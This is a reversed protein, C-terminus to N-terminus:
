HGGSPSATPLNFTVPTPSPKPTPSASPTPSPSPTPTPIAFSPLAVNVGGSAPGAHGPATIEYVKEGPLVYGLKRAEEELWAVTQADVIERQHDSISQTLAANQQQLQRVQADIRGGEAVQSYM